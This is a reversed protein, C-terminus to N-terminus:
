VGSCSALASAANTLSPLSYRGCMTRWTISERLPSRRTTSGSGSRSIGSLGALTLATSSPMTSTFM